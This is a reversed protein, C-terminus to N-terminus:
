SVARAVAGSVPWTVSVTALDGVSSDVPSWETILVSGSYVPNGAGTAASTPKITFAVTTGIATWMVEDLGNDVFDQHFTVTVQASKLGGIRETWTDGFATSELEAVSIPLSVSAIWDSWDTGAFTITHDTAAFIAV